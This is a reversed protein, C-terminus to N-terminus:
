RDQLGLVGKLRGLSRNGTPKTLGPQNTLVAARCEVARASTLVAKVRNRM